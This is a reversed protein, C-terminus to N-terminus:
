VCARGGGGVGWVCWWLWRVWGAGWVGAGARVGAHVGLAWAGARAPAQRQLPARIDRPEIVARPPEPDSTSCLLPSPAPRTPSSPPPHARRPPLWWGGLLGPIQICAHGAAQLGVRVWSPSLQVPAAARACPVAAPVCPAGHQMHIRPYSTSPSAPLFGVHNSCTQVHWPGLAELITLPGCGDWGCRHLLQAGRVSARMAAM